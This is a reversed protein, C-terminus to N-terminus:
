EQIADRVTHGPAIMPLVHEEQPTLVDLVYATKSEIMETIAPTLEDPKSIRRGPLGFGNAIAVFDPYPEQDTGAGIYTHGRRGEFFRDEWQVVMGLHQNDLLLVKLPLNEVYATALEQINMQLSGDGDIDVVLRDPCAVQAGVAAPLGFGMTGLGGSTVFERPRDFTFFQAAWMQHQGVGTVIVCDGGTQKCLEDIAQQPLIREASPGYTMPYQRKWEAVQALWDAREAPEVIKNLENLAYGVDSVVPIHAPKNKNIESADIDIHVITADRCFEDLNGTVRDDFRAGMALLLDCGEIAYNAYMTGHMGLMGLALAHSGPFAGLGTLTMTVPIQTTEAFQRLADSADASVVGGGVYLVPRKARAVAEAVQRLQRETARAHPSYGPLDMQPDDLTLGQAMQIDKPVDVLVPGPRGTQAVYFAERIVRSLDKAHTVLYHHKTIARAVEVMPTEQFADSGIVPTTVQGTIAVVPISDMKANALGSVLNLAGPGSTTMCVGVKGSCRAYATAAFIGGQEHRPLVNRLRDQLRVLWQHTPMTYGGPYAFLTDVGERLLCRVLLEAGTMTQACATM